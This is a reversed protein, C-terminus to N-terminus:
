YRDGQPFGHHREADLEWRVAKYLKTGLHIQGKTDMTPKNQSGQSGPFRPHETGGRESLATVENIVRWKDLTRILTVGAACNMAPLCDCQQTFRSLCLRSMNINFSWKSRHTTSVPDWIWLYHLAVTILWLLPELSLARRPSSRIGTIGASPLSSSSCSSLWPLDTQVTLTQGILFNQSPCGYSDNISFHILQSTWGSFPCHTNSYLIWWKAVM